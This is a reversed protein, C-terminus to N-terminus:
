QQNTKARFDTVGEGRDVHECGGGMLLVRAHTALFSQVQQCARETLLWTEAGALYTNQLSDAGHGLLGAEMACWGKRAVSRRNRLEHHMWGDVHQMRGLHKVSLCTEGQVPVRHKYFDQMHSQAHRGYQRFMTQKKDRNQSLGTPGAIQTELM